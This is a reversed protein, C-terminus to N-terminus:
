SGFSRGVHTPIFGDFSVNGVESVKSRGVHTPIFGPHHGRHAPGTGAEGWTRPSSGREILECTHFTEGVHTPIFGQLREPPFPRRHKEGRAHPHVRQIELM